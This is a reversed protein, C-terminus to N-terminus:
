ELRYSLGAGSGRRSPTSWSKMWARPLTRGGAVISAPGRRCRVSGRRPMRPWADHIVESASRQEHAALKEVVAATQDDLEITLSM